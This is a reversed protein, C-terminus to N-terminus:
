GAHIASERRVIERIMPVEDELRSLPTRFALASVSIAGPLGARESSRVALCNVGVENEQADLAYGRARTAQLEDWLRGLDTITSPTRQELAASGLLELLEMRDTVLDGLLLKGVATRYAPNRGGVASSLRVAGGSPDTKARYVVDAGDLVAYHATEGYRASLAELIPLVRASGPREAHNQFALRFFEDGLIYTGRGIQSALGARKLSALARHVTPKPSGLANALDVLSTGHPYAALKVLVALVRDAGVIRSEVSGPDAEM